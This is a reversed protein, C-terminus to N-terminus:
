SGYFDRNWTSRELEANEREEAIIEAEIDEGDGEHCSLVYDIAAMTIKEGIAKCKDAFGPEGHSAMADIVDRLLEDNCSYDTENVAESQISPLWTAIVRSAVQGRQKDRMLRAYTRFGAEHMADSLIRRPTENNM